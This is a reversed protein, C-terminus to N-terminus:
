WGMEKKCYMRIATLDTKIVDRKTPDYVAVAPHFMPFVIYHPRTYMNGRLRYMTARRLGLMYETAVRGLTVVVKPKIVVLEIELWSKCETVIERDPTENNPPRCKVTNTIFVKEKPFELEAICARLFSGSAGVFPRGERAENEGPAEGVFMVDATFSGEGPVHPFERLQCRTCELVEARLEEKNM